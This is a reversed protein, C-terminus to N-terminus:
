KKGGEKKSKAEAEKKEHKNQGVLVIRAINNLPVENTGFPTAIVYSPVDGKPYDLSTVGLFEGQVPLAGTPHKLLIELWDNKEFSAM